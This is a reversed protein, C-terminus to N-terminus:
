GPELPVLALADLFLGLVIVGIPGLVAADSGGLASGIGEFLLWLIGGLCTLRGVVLLLTSHEHGGSRARLFGVVVIIMGLGLATVTLGPVPTVPLLLLGLVILALGLQNLWAMPISRIDFIRMMFTLGLEILYGLVDMTTYVLGM